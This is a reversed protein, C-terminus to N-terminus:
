QRQKSGPPEDKMSKEGSRGYAQGNSGKHGPVFIQLNIFQPAFNPRVPHTKGSGDRNEGALISGIDLPSHRFEIKHV